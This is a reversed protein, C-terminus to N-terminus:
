SIPGRALGRQKNEQKTKNKTERQGPRPEIPGNGDGGRAKGGHVSSELEPKPKLPHGEGGADAKSRGGGPERTGTRELIANELGRAPGGKWRAPGTLAKGAALAATGGAPRSGDRNAEATTRQAGGEEDKAPAGRESIRAAGEALAGRWSSTTSSAKPTMQSGEGAAERITALGAVTREAGAAAFLVMRAKAAGHCAAGRSEPRREDDDMKWDLLIPASPPKPRRTERSGWLSERAQAARKGGEMESLCLTGWGITRCDM